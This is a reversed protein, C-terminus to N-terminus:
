LRKSNLSKPTNTLHNVLINKRVAQEYDNDKLPVDGKQHHKPYQKEVM